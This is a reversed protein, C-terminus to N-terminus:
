KGLNFDISGDFQLNPTHQKEESRSVGRYVNDTMYRFEINFNVGGQNLGEDERPPPPPAYVSQEDPLLSLTAPPIQSQGAAVGAWCGLVAAAAGLSKKWTPM